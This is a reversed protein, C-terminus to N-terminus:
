KRAWHSTSYTCHGPLIPILTTFATREDQRSTIRIGSSGGQRSLFDAVLRQSKEAIEAMRRSLEAPDPLSDARDKGGGAASERESM